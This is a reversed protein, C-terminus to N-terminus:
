HMSSFAFSRVRSVYYEKAVEEENADDRFHDDNFNSPNADFNDSEEFLPLDRPPNVTTTVTTGNEAAHQSTAQIKPRLSAPNIKTLTNKKSRRKSM